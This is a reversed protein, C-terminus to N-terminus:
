KLMTQTKTLVDNLAGLVVGKFDEGAQRDGQSVNIIIEKAGIIDGEVKPGSSTGMDPRKIQGVKTGKLSESLHEFGVYTADAPMEFGKELGQQLKQAEKLEKNILGRAAGQEELSKGQLDLVRQQAAAEK